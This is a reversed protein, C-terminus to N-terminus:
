KEEVASIVWCLIGYWFMEKVALLQNSTNGSSLYKTYSSTKEETERSGNDLRHFVHAL